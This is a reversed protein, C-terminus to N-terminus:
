NLSIMVNTAQQKNQKNGKAARQRGRAGGTIGGILGEEILRRDLKCMKEYRAYKLGVGDHSDGKDIENKGSSHGSANVYSVLLFITFKM